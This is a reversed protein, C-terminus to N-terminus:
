PYEDSNMIKFCKIGNRKSTYRTELKFLSKDIKKHKDSSEFEHGMFFKFFM